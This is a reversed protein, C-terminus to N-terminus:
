LRPRCCARTPPPAPSHSLLFTLALSRCVLAAFPCNPSGFVFCVSVFCCLHRTLVALLATSHLLPTHRRVFAAVAVCSSGGAVAGGGAIAVCVSLAVQKPSPCSILPRCATARVLHLLRPDSAELAPATAHQAIVALFRCRTLLPMVQPRFHPPPPLSPAGSIVHSNKTSPSCDIPGQMRPVFRRIQSAACFKFADASAAAAARKGSGLLNKIKEVFHQDM